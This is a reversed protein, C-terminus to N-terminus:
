ASAPVHRGSFEASLKRMETEIVAKREAPPHANGAKIAQLVRRGVEVLFEKDDTGPRQPARIVTDHGYTPIEGGVPALPEHDVEGRIARRLHKRMMVVGRDTTGLHEMAHVAIQRQGTQADWDGPNRQREEYSRGGTQGVFDVSDYGIEEERGRHDPDVDDNFHRWGILWTTGDDVPVNWRTLSVRSFYKEQEVSEWWLAGTQQINPFITEASRVWVLDGVRRSSIYYVRDDEDFYQLIPIEGWIAGLQVEKVLTHLFVTHIPDIGNDQIQLWNCPFHLSYPLMRNDPTNYIDYIPFEPRAEPPGMYAFILGKFEHVPYAGHCLNDKMKSAAPEGPTELITGDIDFLWGHYCCRLGRDSVIGYELSTGRHPCHRHLLGVRGGFDRFLVLDEGLVRLALPLDTLQSAMAVPHWFRRLYEGGPTGPGVGTLEADPKPIITARYGSYPERLTTQLKDM